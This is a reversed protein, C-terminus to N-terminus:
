RLVFNIKDAYALGLRPNLASKEVDEEGVVDVIALWRLPNNLYTCHSSMEELSTVVDSCGLGDHGTM